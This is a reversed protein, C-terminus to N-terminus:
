QPQWPQFTPSHWPPVEYQIRSLNIGSGLLVESELRGGGEQSKERIIKPLIEACAKGRNMSLCVLPWVPAMISTSRSCADRVPCGFEVSAWRACSFAFRRFSVYNQNVIRSLASEQSIHRENVGEIADRGYEKKERPSPPHSHFVLSRPAHNTARHPHHRSSTNIDRPSAVM